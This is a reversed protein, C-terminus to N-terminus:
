ANDDCSRLNLAYQGAFPIGTACCIGLQMALTSKGIGTYGSLLLCGGRRIFGLGAINDAPDPKYAKLDEFTTPPYQNNLDTTTM